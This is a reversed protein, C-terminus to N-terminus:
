LAVVDAQAVPRGDEVRIVPLLLDRVVRDGVDVGGAQPRSLHDVLLLRGPREPFRFRLVLGGELAIGVTVGAVEDPWAPLERVPVLCGSVSTRLPGLLGRPM